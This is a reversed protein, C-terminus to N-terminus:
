NLPDFVNNPDNSFRMGGLFYALCEEGELFYHEKGGGPVLGSFNGNVVPHQARGAWDHSVAPDNLEIGPFVAALFELSEEAINTLGPGTPFTLVRRYDAASECLLIRAPPYRGFKAKFQECAIALHNIEIQTATEEMSRWVRTVVSLTLS